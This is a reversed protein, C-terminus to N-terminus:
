FRKGLRSNLLRQAVLKDALSTVGMSAAFHALPGAYFKQAVGRIKSPLLDYAPSYYANIIDLAPKVERGIRGLNGTIKGELRGLRGLLANYNM